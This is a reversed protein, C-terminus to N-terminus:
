TGAALAVSNEQRASLPLTFHFDSGKGLVSKVWIRGGHAEIIGRAIALGLGTGVTREARRAHWYRDFVHPIHEAPIGVGTDTVLVEVGEGCERAHVGITGGGETFKVANALLNGLVQMIRAGDVSVQPLTRPVDVRVTIDRNLAPQEIMALVRGVIARVNEPHRDITLHGSEIIAVDLLDQILRDMLETSELITASLKRWAETDGSTTTLLVRACMGIASLPNRLDHSVVSLIEDRAQATRRAVQYLWANDIAFAASKVLAEALARQPPGFHREPDTALLTLAGIARERAVLAVTMLAHVGLSAVLQERSGATGDRPWDGPLPDYVVTENGRITEGVPFPWSTDDVRASELTRLRKTIDPDDHVSVVRRLMGETDGVDLVCCDALYPITLHAVSVLTSEYDLSAGLVAGARSLFRQDAQERTQNSVDRLLVTFLRGDGLEVRSISAEAPFERGDRRLGVIGRDPGLRRSVDAARRFQLVHAAHLERFREPILTQLEKGLIESERWGFIEEAGRNFHLIRQEDNVTIIADAAISLIRSFKEESARLERDVRARDEAERDLARIAFLITLLGAGGVITAASAIAARPPADKM